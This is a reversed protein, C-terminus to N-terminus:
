PNSRLMEMDRSLKAMAILHQAAPSDPTLRLVQRAYRETAGYDQLHRFAFWSWELWLEANAPWLRTATQYARDAAELNGAGTEVLGLEWNVLADYPNLRLAKQLSSRATDLWEDEGTRVWQAYATDGAQSQLWDDWPARAALTQVGAAYDPSPYQVLAVDTNIDRYWWGVALLAVGVGAALRIPPISVPLRFGLTFLAALAWTVDWWGALTSAPMIVGAAGLLGLPLTIKWGTFSGKLLRAATGVVALLLVVALPNQAGLARILLAGALGAWAWAEGPVTGQTQETTPPALLVGLALWFMWGTMVSTFSFQLDVLHATLLPLALLAPFDMQLPSRDARFAQLSLHLWVLLLAALTLMLPLYPSQWAIFAAILLFVGASVWVRMSNSLLGLRRLATGFAALWLGARAMVGLWGTTILTDLWDNHARDVPGDVYRLRAPDPISRYLTEFSELGYGLLPRLARYADPQNDASVMVPWQAALAQTNSWTEVRFDVTADAEPDIVRSLLPLRALWSDTQIQTLMFAGTGALLVGALAILAVRPRRYVAAWALAATVAGALLALLAGRSGTLVVALLMLALGAFVWRKRPINPQQVLSVIVWLGALVLWAATFISVGLPGNPRAPNPGPSIFSVFQLVVYASVAVGGFWVPRWLSRIDALQAILFAGGLFTLQMLLGTHRYPDGFFARSPSLALATSLTLVVVWVLIAALLPRNLRQRRPQLWGAALGVVALVLLVGARQAEYPEFRQPFTDLVVLGLSITIIARINLPM